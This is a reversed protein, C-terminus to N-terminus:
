GAADDLSYRWLFDPDKFEVFPFYNAEFDPTNNPPNVRAISTPNIGAVDGPGYLTISHSVPVPATKPQSDPNSDAQGRVDITLTGTLHGNNVTLNKLPSKYRYYSLFTMSESM